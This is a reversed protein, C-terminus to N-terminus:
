PYIFRTQFLETKVSDICLNKLFIGHVNIILRMMHQIEKNLYSKMYLLLIQMNRLKSIWNMCYDKREKYIKKHNEIQQDLGKLTERENLQLLHIGLDVSKIQERISQIANLNM